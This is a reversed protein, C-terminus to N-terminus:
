QVGHQCRCYSQCVSQRGADGASYGILTVTGDTAIDLYAPQNSYYEITADTLDVVATTTDAGTLALVILEPAEASIITASATMTVNALEIAQELGNVGFPQTFSIGGAGKLQAWVYTSIEDEHDNLDITEGSAIIRGNAVWEIASYNEGAVTITDETENVAINTIVPTEGTSVFDTGLERKAVKAVAYFTGNEMSSRVNDLTNEPLLMM